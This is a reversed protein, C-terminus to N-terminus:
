KFRVLFTEDDIVLDLFLCLLQQLSELLIIPTLQVLLLPIGYEAGDVLFRLLRLFLLLRLFAFFRRFCLLSSLILPLPSDAGCDNEYLPQYNFVLSNLIKLFMFLCVCHLLQMNYITQCVTSFNIILINRKLISM